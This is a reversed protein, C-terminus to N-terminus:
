CREPWCIKNWAGLIEHAQVSTIVNKKMADLIVAHVTKNWTKRTIRRLLKEIM